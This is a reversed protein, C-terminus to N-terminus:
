APQVGTALEAVQARIRDRADGLGSVLVSRSVNAVVDRARSGFTRGVESLKAGQAGFGPVLLPIADPGVVFDSLTEEIRKKGITAGVVLGFPGTSPEVAHVIANRWHWYDRFGLVDRDDTFRKLVSVADGDRKVSGIAGVSSYRRRAEVTQEFDARVDNATAGVTTRAKIWRATVVDLFSLYNDPLYSGLYGESRWHLLDRESLGSLSTAIEHDLVNGRHNWEAVQSAVDSSLPVGNESTSTQIGAAEINSTAALVFLGKRHTFASAFAPRLANVGLYPSLTLADCYFPSTEALWADAYGQLTTSIDGRKADAIVILGADHARHTLVELVALGRSGFREFFAVQPKVIGVEGICADLLADSFYQLGAVSDGLETAKLVDSHPDIGVCLGGWQDLASRLRVGFAFPDTNEYPWGLRGHQESVNAINSM